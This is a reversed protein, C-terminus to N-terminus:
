GGLDGGAAAAIGPESPGGPVNQGGGLGVPADDRRDGIGDQGPTSDIDEAPGDGADNAISPDLDGIESESGVTPEPADGGEGPDMRFVGQNEGDFDAVEEVPFVEGTD